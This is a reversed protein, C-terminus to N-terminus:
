LQGEKRSFPAWQLKCLSCVEADASAAAAVLSHGPRAREFGFALRTELLFRAGTAFLLQEGVVAAADNSPLMLLLVLIIAVFSVSSYRAWM